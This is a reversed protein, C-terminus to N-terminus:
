KYKQMNKNACHCYKFFKQGPKDKDVLSLLVYGRGHCQKCSNKSFIKAREVMYEFEAREKAELRQIEDM